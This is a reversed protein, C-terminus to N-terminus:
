LFNLILSCAEELTKVRVHSHYNLWYDKEHSCGFIVIIKGREHAYIVEMSTGIMSAEGFEDNVLIIDASDIDTKDRIIALRSDPLTEKVERNRLAHIVTFDKLLEAAKLRWGLSQERPIGRIPGSLFIRKM